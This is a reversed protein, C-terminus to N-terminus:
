RWSFLKLGAFLVMTAGGGNFHLYGGWAAIPSEPVAASSTVCFEFGGRATTPSELVTSSSVQVMVRAEFLGTHAYAALSWELQFGAGFSNTSGVLHNYVVLRGQGSLTVIAALQCFTRASLSRFVSSVGKICVVM